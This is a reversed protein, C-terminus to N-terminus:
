PLDGSSGIAALAPGTDFVDSAGKSRARRNEQRATVARPINDFIDSPLDTFTKPMDDYVNSPLDRYVNDPLDNYNTADM